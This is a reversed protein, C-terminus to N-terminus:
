ALSEREHFLGQRELADILAGLEAVAEADRHEAALLRALASRAELDDPHREAAQRLEEIATTADGRAALTRALAVRAHADEPREELLGRLYAEFDRARDLAAYTAELRAYVLAGKSRDIEPVKSWADLAAKSRGREAHLAGLAVLGRVSRPDRRLARRLARRADDSRGEAVATEAMEVILAAESSAGDTKELKSLRRSLDIARDFERVSALLPVMARLATRQKPDHSLAEDYSAIARQLFGGQRFDAALDVLAVVTQEKTLDARLLLNQHMRIARGIEGRMRYLRALAMYPEVQKTDLSVAHTLLAEARDLDRDLVALLARRLMADVDRPARGDRGRLRKWFPM